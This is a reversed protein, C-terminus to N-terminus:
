KNRANRNLYPLLFVALIGAIITICTSTGWILWGFAKGTTLGVGYLALTGAVFVPFVGIGNPTAIMALTSLTLVAAAAKPGLTSTDAMGGFGIYIQLFYCLWMLVTLLLFLKVEKLKKVAIIGDLFGKLFRNITLVIKSSPYKLLLKKLLLYGGILSVVVVTIKFFVWFLTKGVFFEAVIETVYKLVVNLQSLVTVIVLIFYCLLDFTREVVITGVLTEAKHQEYKAAVRCKILEGLRPVLANVLYGIMTALFLNRKKPPQGLPIILLKWRAARIYHSTLNLSIIPLLYWYNTAALASRFDEFQEATMNKFQWYILGVGVAFFLLYRAFGMFKTTM